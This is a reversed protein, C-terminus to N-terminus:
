SSFPTQQEEKTKSLFGSHRQSSPDPWKPRANESTCSQLDLLSFDGFDSPDDAADAGSSGWLIDLIDQTLSCIFFRCWITFCTPTEAAAPLVLGCSKLERASIPADFILCGVFGCSGFLGFEVCPLPVLFPLLVYSCSPLIRTWRWLSRQLHSSGTM